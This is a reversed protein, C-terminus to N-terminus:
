FKDLFGKFWIASQKPYRKLGNMYDVYNIGFRVTYGSSWEFNDLLSWAFYGKVNVGDKIAKHLYSLHRYYYDIRMYDALQQELPLTSNNFEDIGNETIYILPNQYKTKVYMLLSQIGSPYVYLWSSAAGPGIPIGNRETSLNARADTLYSSNLANSHPMYKAYNATYYNLGLFDFSGEVMLSQEKTFKPLRKGILSRMSHPYNGYTIPNLFWGLMWDLARLAANQNHKADSYPVMWHSVLTIGIAGKQSAQYKDRYLKVATAHALLQNHGVIYPETGSDGGTCNLMQWDSCRGPAFRGKAYGNIAYSSPENLTIWHKVRDGFEKFCVEVYDRFDDVVHSSLFGGYEEELAQPLDWHFLTVFPQIGHALLENILNNYYKVGKKNIGGELKGKPLVRSWSISFRYADLGMEKMIGVDEKYRHYSDVAMDGNSGDAIKGPHQHTFYDWISPRRGDENAAGEYQYASSATGFLFGAPFSRRNLLVTDHGAPKFAGHEATCHSASSVLALICLLMLEHVRFAM